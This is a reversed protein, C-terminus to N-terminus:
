PLAPEFGSRRRQEAGAPGNLRDVFRTALEPELARKAVAAVYVTALDFPTPLPGVLQLGPTRLIESAQTCGVAASDSSAALAGMAAAGNAFTRRPTTSGLQELVAAIHIGATSREPDPFYIASAAQLAHALADASVIDPRPDGTRVAVATRVRGLPLSAAHVWDDGHLRRALADTVILVDFPQGAVLAEHLAGVAGFTLVLAADHEAEFGARLSEVLGQAAGACLVALRTTM